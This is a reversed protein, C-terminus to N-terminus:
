SKLANYVIAHLFDYKELDNLADQTFKKYYETAGQITLIDINPSGDELDDKIQFAMGLHYGAEKIADIDGRMACLKGACFAAMFLRATKDRYISYIEIPEITEGLSFEKAQGGVMGFHGSYRAIVKQAELLEVARHNICQDTMIEYALNLLADGALIAMAEGFAKHVTPRGRRIDDDDMAPLDDHILSYTHIMELACAFPLADADDGGYARCTSLLIVPRLRKGGPFLSHEMAEFLRPPCDKKIQALYKKLEDDITKVANDFQKKFEKQTLKM